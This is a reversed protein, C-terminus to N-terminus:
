PTITKRPYDNPRSSGGMGILDMMIVCFHETLKKIVKFYLPGSSAYGHVLVLFPKEISGCINTNIYVDKGEFEKVKVKATRVESMPLGILQLVQRECYLRNEDNLALLDHSPQKTLGMCMNGM